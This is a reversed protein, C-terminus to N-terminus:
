LFMEPFEDISVEDSTLYSDKSLIHTTIVPYPYTDASWNRSQGKDKGSLIEGSAEWGSADVERIVVIDKGVTFYMKGIELKM